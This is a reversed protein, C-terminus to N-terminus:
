LSLKYYVDDQEHQDICLYRKTIDYTSHNYLEMLLAPPTGMKWAFYGFTKRLSHCSIHEPHEVESCVAARRIIRYAQSRSLSQDQSKQSTFIYQEAEYEPISTRYLELAECATQNLAVLKEKKTKKERVLIHRRYHSGDYIDTWHLSLIDSIRLASNLGLVILAYNRPQYEVRRYFERFLFLQEEDKIPQTTSM